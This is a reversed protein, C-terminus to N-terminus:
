NENPLIKLYPKLNINRGEVPDYVFFNTDNLQGKNFLINSLINPDIPAIIKYGGNSSSSDNFRVIEEITSNASYGAKKDMNFIYNALSITISLKFDPPSQKFSNEEMSKIYVNVHSKLNRPISNKFDYQHKIEHSLISTFSYINDLRSSYKDGRMNLVTIYPPIPSTSAPIDASTQSADTDKGTAFWYGAPTGMKQALFVAIKTLIMRQNPNNPDLESPKKTVGDIEIQILKGDAGAAKPNGDSDFVYNKGDVFPNSAPPNGDVMLSNKSAIVMAEAYPKQSDPLSNAYKAIATRIQAVRGGAGDIDTYVRDIYKEIYQVTEALTLSTKSSLQAAAYFDPTPQGTFGLIGVRPMENYTIIVKTSVLVPGNATAEYVSVTNTNHSSDYSNYAFYPRNSPNPDHLGVGM